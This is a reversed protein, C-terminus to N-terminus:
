ASGSSSNMAAFLSRKRRRQEAVGDLRDQRREAQYDQETAAPAALGRQGDFRRQMERGPDGQSTNATPRSSRSDQQDLVFAWAFQEALLEFALEGGPLVLEGARDEDVRLAPARERESVLVALRDIPEAREDDGVPDVEHDAVREVGSPTAPTPEGSCVRSKTVNITM